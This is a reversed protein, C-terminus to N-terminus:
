GGGRQFARDFCTLFAQRQEKRLEGLHLTVRARPLALLGGLTAKELPQYVIRVEAQNSAIVIETQADKVCVDPALTKLARHFEALNLSMTKVVREPPTGM